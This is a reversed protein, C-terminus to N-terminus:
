LLNNRGLYLTKSSTSTRYRTPVITRELPKKGRVVSAHSLLLLHSQPIFLEIRVPTLFVPFVHYRCQGGLYSRLQHFPILSCYICVCEWFIKKSKFHRQRSHKTCNTGHEVFFLRLKSVPHKM